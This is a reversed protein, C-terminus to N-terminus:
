YGSALRAPWVGVIALVLGAVTVRHALPHRLLGVREGRLWTLVGAVPALASALFLVPGVPHDRFALVLDGEAISVFSRTMGTLPSPIGLAVLPAHPIWSPIGWHAFAFALTVLSAGLVGLAVDVRMIESRTLRDASSVRGQRGM